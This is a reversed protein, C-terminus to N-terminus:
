IDRLFYWFEDPFEYGLRVVCPQPLAPFLNKIKHSDKETCVLHTAGVRAASAWLGSMDHETYAHHDAFPVVAKAGLVSKAYRFFGGPEALGCFALFSPYPEGLLEGNSGQVAGYRRRAPFIPKGPCIEELWHVWRERDSVNEYAVVIGDAHAMAGLPERLEGLPLCYLSEMGKDANFVLLSRDKVLSLSQYG